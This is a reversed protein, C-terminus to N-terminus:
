GAGHEGGAERAALWFLAGNLLVRSVGGGRENRFRARAFQRALTAAGRRSHGLGLLIGIVAGGGSILFAEILFQSLIQNPAAGVAKRLGIERTREKVTVLMINMIGVGSILLAIFAIVVLVVTLALSITRAATLISALTRVFYEAEAPHRNKLLMLLKRQVVPVMEPASAQAYLTRIVEKGTYYKIM